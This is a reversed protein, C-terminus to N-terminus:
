SKELKRKTEIRINEGEVRFSSIYNKKELAQVFDFHIRDYQVKPRRGNVAIEAYPNGLKILIETIDDFDLVEIKKTILMLKKEVSMDINLLWKFLDTPLNMENKNVFSSLETAFEIDENLLGVDLAQFLRVKDNDSIRQSHILQVLTAHELIYDDMEEIFRHIHKELYLLVLDNHNTKISEYNESSLTLLGHIIMTKVRNISLSDIPFYDFRDLSDILAEFSQDTLNENKIIAESLAEVTHTDAGTIDSICYKSLENTVVSTNLFDNLAQDFGESKQFYAIINAWTIAIKNSNILLTWIESDISTIDTIMVGQEDIVAKKLEISIDDRNLLDILADETEEKIAVKLLVQQVYTEIYADLYNLVEECKTQRISSYSLQDDTVGLITVLTNPNIEYLEKEVIYDIFDQNSTFQELSHFKVNLEFVIQNRKNNNTPAVTLFNHHQAIFNSLEQKKNIKKIDEINAFALIDTLYSDIKENTFNSENEVYHWIGDWKKCISQIFMQKNTAVNRFEDIFAIVRKSKDALQNIATDYYNKYKPNQINAMLHNLLDYNLTEEQKFESGNLFEIIKDINKLPHSMELLEHNKVSFIFKMDSETLSGPHFYTLYHNYMEDIYGHRLLYILLKKNSIIKFFEDQSDSEQILEKLSKSSVEAKSQKLKALDEKLNNIKGEERSKIYDERVFYNEKTGFVTAIQNSKVQHRGKNPLQYQVIDAQKLQDFFLQMDIDQDDRFVESQIQIYNNGRRYNSYLGLDYLYSVQLEKLSVLTEQELQSIMSSLSQINKEISLTRLRIVENKNNLVNYVLGKGYQLQSFDYPYINKYIIMALLQNLDLDIGGLKGKYIIFENFINKLIRMDDIYITVDRLLDPNIRDKYDQKEIREMLKDISNSSNIIPIVPIIFDFFKTRNKSFDITDKTTKNETDIVGFIEDKIAYIFVIERKIQESNNLLANLERLKEFIDLNNFRDLDEFIVVNYKTAEFFYLIEDLYKDFISQTHDNNKEFTASALTVKNFNLNGQFFGYINKLFVFPFLLCVVILFFTWLIETLNGSIINQQLPTGNFIDKLYTPQFLYTGATASMLFLILFLIISRNKVHKIRKFRSFPITRDKVRYIMQQLISKELENEQLDGKDQQFTALSINLFHYKDKYKEKYTSLLSSKGSGYPGTLAINKVNENELGWSIAEAYKGDEDVDKSPTLDEFFIETTKEVSGLKILLKSLMDIIITLTRIIWIKM